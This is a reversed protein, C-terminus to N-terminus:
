ETREGNGSFFSKKWDAIAGAIVKRYTAVDPALLMSFGNTVARSGEFFGGFSDYALIFDYTGMKRAMNGSPCSAYFGRQRDSKDTVCLTPRREKRYVCIDLLEPALRVYAVRRVDPQAEGYKKIVMCEEEDIVSVSKILKPKRALFPYQMLVLKTAVGVEDEADTSLATKMFYESDLTIGFVFGSRAFTDKMSDYKEELPSHRRLLLADEPSRHSVKPM